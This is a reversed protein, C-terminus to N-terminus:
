LIYRLTNTRCVALEIRSSLGPPNSYLLHTENGLTNTHRGDKINDKYSEWTKEIKSPAAGVMQSLHSTVVTFDWDDQREFKAISVHDKNLGVSEVNQM